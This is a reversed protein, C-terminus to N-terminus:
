EMILEGFLAIDEIQRYYLSKSRTHTQEDSHGDTVTLKEQLGILIGDTKFM